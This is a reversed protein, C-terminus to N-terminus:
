SLEMGVIRRVNAPGAMLISLLKQRDLEMGHGRSCQLEKFPLKPSSRALAGWCSIHAMHFNVLGRTQTASSQGNKDMKNPLKRSFKVERLTINKCMDTMRNVPPGQIIGSGTQSGPGM